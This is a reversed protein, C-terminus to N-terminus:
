LMSAGALIACFSSSLTSKSVECDARWVVGLTMLFGIKVLLPM